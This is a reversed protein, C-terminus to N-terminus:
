RKLAFGWWSKPDRRIKEPYVQDLRSLYAHAVAKPIHPNLSRLGGEVGYHHVSVKYPYRYVPFGAWTVRLTLEIDDLYDEGHGGCAQYVSAPILLGGGIASFPVRKYEKGEKTPLAILAPERKLRSIMDEYYVTFAPLLEHDDDLFLLYQIGDAIAVQAARRRKPASFGPEEWFIRADPYDETHYGDGQLILYPVGMPAYQRISGMLQQLIRPRQYSPVIIALHM